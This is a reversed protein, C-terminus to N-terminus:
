RRRRSRKRKPRAHRQAQVREMSRTLGEVEVSTVALEAQLEETLPMLQQQTAQVRASLRRVNRVLERAVVVMVGVVVVAVALSLIVFASVAFM